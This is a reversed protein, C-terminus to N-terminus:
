RKGHHHSRVFGGLLAAERPVQNFPKEVMLTFFIGSGLYIILFVILPFFAKIGYNKKSQLNDM